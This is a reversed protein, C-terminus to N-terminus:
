KLLSTLEKIDKLKELNLVMDIIKLRRNDAIHDKTCMEFKVILDELSLPNEADGKVIHVEKEFVKGDNMKVKLRAPRKEPFDKELEDVQTIRIKKAMHHIDENNLHDESVHYPEVTGYRLATAVTFPISYQASESTEPLIHSLTVAKSFTEIIIEDVEDWNPNFAEKIHSAATIPSHAWKCAPYQKFYINKIEYIDGLTQFVEKVGDDYDMLINDPGTFGSEALQVSMLGTTAGWGVSEKTMSGAAISKECQATPGYVEGITLSHFLPEGSLGKMKAAGAASGFHAWGGSGFFQQEHKANMVIGCRIGVEYGAVIATILHKGSGNQILEGYALAPPIVMCGPHGVAQRHGDDIDMCSSLTANAFTAAFPSAKNEKGLVTCSGEGGLWSASNLAITSANNQYGAFSAAIFDLLCKKANAVVEPSMFDYNEHEIYDSVKTIPM